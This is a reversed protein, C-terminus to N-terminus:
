YGKKNKKDVFNQQGREIVNNLYKKLSQRQYLLNEESASTESLERIDGVM